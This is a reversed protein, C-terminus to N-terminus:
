FKLSYVSRTLRKQTRDKALKGAGTWMETARKWRSGVVARRLEEEYKENKKRSFSRRFLDIWRAHLHRAPIAADVPRFGGLLDASETQTSLNIVTLPRNLTSAVHQVATTKGTGTEGVLLMPEALNIGVAIRELLIASPKTMAYPRSPQATSDHPRPALGHLSARGVRVMSSQRARSDGQVEVQPVRKDLLWDAREQGLGLADGLIRAIAQRREAQAPIQYPFSGLFIDVAELFVEDQVSPNSFRMVDASPDVHMAIEGSLPLCVEVRACWKELDRLGYTRRAGSGPISMKAFKAEVEKIRQYAVSLAQVPPGALRPYKVDMIGQVELESPAPLVVEHYYNHGLFIAPTAQDSPNVLKRTAFLAFGDGAEIGARGPIDLMARGGSVKAVGLSDALRSFLSLVEQGARDIDELVIWRGSRVAKTLAGEVWTFTGPETPSSVYSGLLAKADISTDALSIILIRSNVPTAPYIKTSLHQLLHTKGSSAVGSLLIPLRRNLLTAVLTLAQKNSHVDVHLVHQNQQALHTSLQSKLVLRDGVMTTFPCLDGPEIVSTTANTWKVSSAALEVYAKERIAERARLGWGEVIQLQMHGALDVSDEAIYEWGYTIFATPEIKVPGVWRDELETREREALGAQLVHAQVALYRVGQDEHLTYLIRLPIKTWYNRLCLRPDASLLRYYSLLLLHLRVSPTSLITEDKPLFALPTSKAFPSQAIFTNV